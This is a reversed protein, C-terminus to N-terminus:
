ASSGAIPLFRGHVVRLVVSAVAFMAPPWLILGIAPKIDVIAELARILQTYDVRAHPM